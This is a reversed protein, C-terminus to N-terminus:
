INRETNESVKFGNMGWFQQQLIEPILTILNSRDTNRLSFLTECFFLRKMSVVDLRGPNRTQFRESGEQFAGTQIMYLQHSDSRVM